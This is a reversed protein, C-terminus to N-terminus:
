ALEVVCLVTVAATLANCQAVDVTLQGMVWPSKTAPAARDSGTEDVEPETIQSMPFDTANDTLTLLTKEVPLTCKVTVDTSAPATGDYGITIGVLRTMGDPLAIQGSGTAVGAGGVTDVVIPDLRKIRSM